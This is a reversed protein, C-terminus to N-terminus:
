FIEWLVVFAKVGLWSMLRSSVPSPPHPALCLFSNDNQLIWLISHFFCSHIVCCETLSSIPVSSQPPSTSFGDLLFSAYIDHSETWLFLPVMLLPFTPWSPMPAEPVSEHPNKKEGANIFHFNLHHLLCDPYLWTILCIFLSRFSQCMTPGTGLSCCICYKQSQPRVKSAELPTLSM